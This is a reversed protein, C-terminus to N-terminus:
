RGPFTRLLWFLEYNEGATDMEDDNVYEEVEDDNKYEEIEGDSMAITKM